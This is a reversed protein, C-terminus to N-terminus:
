WLEDKLVAGEYWDTTMYGILMTKNMSKNYHLTSAGGPLIWSASVPVGHCIFEESLPVTEVPVTMIEWAGSFRDNSDTGNFDYGSFDKRWAIRIANVTEAFSAHFYSIYPVYKPQGNPLSGERRVNLMLKTGASLYTDVRAKKINGTDPRATTTTGNIAPICAYHLGGNRVDYYALHVNDDGDVAMDVHTGAFDAIKVANGQWTGPSGTAGTETTVINGGSTHIIPNNGLSSVVVGTNIDALKFNNTNNGTWRDAVIYGAGNVTVTNGTVLNGCPSYYREVSGSARFSYGSNLLYVSVNYNGATSTQRLFFGNEATNLSSFKVKDGDVARVYYQSLIHNTVSTGVGIYVLDGTKLDHEAPLTYWYTRTTISNGDSGEHDQTGQVASWPRSVTVSSGLSLGINQNAATGTTVTDFIFRDGDIRRASYRAPAPDASSGIVLYKNANNATASTVLKHGPAYYVCETKTEAPTISSATGSYNTGLAVGNLPASNSSGGHSFLLNQNFRDYWAIVPLGNSLAGVATYVSGKYTTSNNAVVQAQPHRTFAANNNQLNGHFNNNNGVTGYHFLVPNDGSGNDYYSMFIRTARADSGKSTGDTNQAFIRPVKARDADYQNAAYATRMIIRKNAGATGNNGAAATRAYFTFHPYNVATMNSAAAYWDGYEDFAITTNLYRNQWYEIQSAANHAAPNNNKRVFFRGDGDYIGYSMYRTSDPAMRMFPSQVMRQNLLYGTNWVYLRRNDNLINNNLNNPEKNYPADDNNKNNISPIGSVEATLDGSVITNKDAPRNREDIIATIHSAANGAVTAGVGDLEKNGVKVITSEGNLNFGNIRIIEEERVPYGGLASRNFASPNSIFAGSLGTEVETIYPVADFRYHATRAKTTTQAFSGPSSSNAAKDAAIVTLVNDAGSVGDIFSSDFDLQWSVTHGAQNPMGAASFKWGNKNFDEETGSNSTWNAGSFMVAAITASGRFNGISFKISDIVNNDSATGRFSVRGSVKPDLDDIASIGTPKLPLYTELEIHGNNRSNKYLSNDAASNWYFPDIFIAPATVDNNDVAVKILVAHALQNEEAPPAGPVTTDYVKILFSKDYRPVLIGNVLDKASDEIRGAGSFSESTYTLLANNALNNAEKETKSRDATYEYTYVMGGTGATMDMAALESHSHTAVFVTGASPTGFVGYNIWKIGNGTEAITYVEGKVINTVSVENQNRKVCSVRYHKNGNGGPTNLNLSFQSNRVRFVTTLEAGTIIEPYAAPPFDVFENPQVGNYGDIDTGLSIGTIVPRNNAVYIDKSYHTANDAIDFVVYHVTLPGDSSNASPYSLQWDKDAPSGTFRPSYPGTQNSDIVIGFDNTVFTGDPQRVNPFFPLPGLTGEGAVSNGTGTRGTKAMQGSVNWASAEDGNLLSILKGNRSFYVVVKDLGQVNIGAGGTDWAKGYILYNGAANLDGAFSAMPYYNDIQLSFTDLTIFPMPNTNDILQIEVNYTGASNYYLGNRLSEPDSPPANTNLPIYVTYEFFQTIGESANAEALVSSGTFYGDRTAVFTTDKGNSKHGDAQFGGFDSGLSEKIWYKKGATILDGARLERPPVVWPKGNIQNNKDIYEEYRAEGQGRLKISTIGSDDRVRAKLTVFEKVTIGPLLTEERATGIDGPKGHIVMVDEVVPVSLDFVLSLSTEGCNKPINQNYMSADWTRVELLVVRTGGRPPDLDGNENINFYWNVTASKNGVINVPVFKGETKPLSPLNATNCDEDSQATVRIEVNNIWENDTAFGSLRVMGGVIQRENHSSISVMPKDADPDVIIEASYVTVNGAVDVVKFKMPLLWLNLASNYDEVYYAANTGKCVDAIDDFCWSWNSLSGGWKANLGKHGDAPFDHLGSDTWGTQDNWANGLPANAETKGLAYYMQVVRQNDIAAGRITVTSCLQPAVFASSGLKILEKPEIFELVPEIDDIIFQRTTTTKNGLNDEAEIHLIKDGSMKQGPAIGLMERMIEPTISIAWSNGTDAPKVFSNDAYAFVVDENNSAMVRVSNISDNPTTINVTATFNGAGKYYQSFDYWKISPNRAAVLSIEMYQNLSADDDSLLLSNNLRNPYTNMVGFSDMVRLKVRYTGVPLDKTKEPDLLEEGRPLRWATGDQIFELMPWRFQVANLSDINLPRYNDDVMTRWQGWKPDSELVIGNNNVNKYDRPWILIQPYGGEIGFADSAIGMLDNGQYLPADGLIRNLDPADFGNGKVRPMTLEIQAPINKVIYIMDTTTTTKGDKDVATVQARIPGDAMETTDINVAWFGSDNLYAPVIKQKKNESRDTYSITMFVSSIGFEQRVDLLVINNDGRLYSGPQSGDPRNQIVPVETNIKYGLGVPTDCASIMILCAATLFLSYFRNFTKM